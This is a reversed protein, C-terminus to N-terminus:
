KLNRLLRNALALERVWSSLGIGALNAADSFGQKESPNVKVILTETKKLESRTKPRGPRNTKPKMSM